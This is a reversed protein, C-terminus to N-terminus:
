SKYLGKANEEECLDCGCGNDFWKELAARRSERGGNKEEKRIGKPDGIYSIKLEEGKKINKGAKCFVSSSGPQQVIGNRDKLWNIGMGDHPIVGHWTVNPDCSHNIFLYNPNIAIMQAVLGGISTTGMNANNEFRWYITQIVEPTFVKELFIDVGLEMLVRTPAVTNEWFQWDHSTSTLDGPKLTKYNAAMLSLSPHQLPHAIKKKGRSRKMDGLVIAMLRLFLIPRWSAKSERGKAINKNKYLWDFDKKCLVKHYSAMAQDYCTRSCYSVQKCCDPVVLHDPSVYPFCLAAHCADCHQQKSSPVDSVGMMTKDLMILEGDEIDRKAFVGLPGVNGGKKAKSQESVPGFVVPKVEWIALDDQRNITDIEKPTRHFLHEDMWPYPKQFIRGTRGAYTMEPTEMEGGAEKLHELRESYGLDLNAQLERLGADNPYKKLAAKAWLRGDYFAACGLLAALIVKYAQCELDELEDDILAQPLRNPDQAYQRKSLLDHGIMDRVISGVNPPYVKRKYKRLGSQVLILARYGNGAAVDCFGLKNDM